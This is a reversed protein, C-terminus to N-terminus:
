RHRDLSTHERPTEIHEIRIYEDLGELINSEQVVHFLYLSAEYKSALDCAYEVAKKAHISGDTPVLIKKMMQMVGM